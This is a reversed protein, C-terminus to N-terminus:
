KTENKKVPLEMMTELAKVPVHLRSGIRIVPLEGRAAAQYAGNRSLGFYLKGAEPISLTKPPLNEPM